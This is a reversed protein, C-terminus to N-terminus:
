AFEDDDRRTRRNSRRATRRRSWSGVMWLYPCLEYSEVDQRVPEVRPWRTPTTGPRRCSPSRGGRTPILLRRTTSPFPRAEMRTIVDNRNRRTAEAEAALCLGREVAWALENENKWSWDSLDDNVEIDLIHDVTDFGIATRRCPAALNV